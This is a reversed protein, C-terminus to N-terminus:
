KNTGTSQFTISTIGARNMAAVTGVVDSFKASSAASVSVTSSNLHGVVGFAADRVKKDRLPLPGLRTTGNSDISIIGSNRQTSRISWFTALVVLLACLMTLALKGRKGGRPRESKNACSM